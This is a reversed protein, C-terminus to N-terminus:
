GSGNNSGNPFVVAVFFGLGAVTTEQAMYSVSVESGDKRTLRGTGALARNAVMDAYREAAGAGRAVDTVRLALLEERTYGLLTCAFHNVAIYRMDEDAVFVAVPGRDIAEGVLSAQVLPQAVSGM